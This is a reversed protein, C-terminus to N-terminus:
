EAEEDAKESAHTQLDALMDAEHEVNFATYGLKKLTNGIHAKHTYYPIDALVTDYFANLAAQKDGAGNTGADPDPDDGTSLVFTKLLFYKEASTAAKAIGKDQSDDAEGAWQCSYEAGSESCGFTFEFMVRTKGKSKGSGPDTVTEQTVEKMSALFSVGEAVLAKRVADAVAADTVYQYGFHKNTGDKPLKSLRGMVRSLKAHLKARDATQENM